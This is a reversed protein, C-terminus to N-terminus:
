PPIITSNSNQFTSSTLPSYGVCRTMAVVVTDNDDDDVVLIEGKLFGVVVVKTIFSISMNPDPYCWGLKSNWYKDGGQLWALLAYFEDKDVRSSVFDYPRYNLLADIAGSDLLLGSDKLQDRQAQLLPCTPSKLWTCLVYAWFGDDVSSCCNTKMLSPFKSDRQCLWYAALAWPLHFPPYDPYDM